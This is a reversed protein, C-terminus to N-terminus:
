RSIHTCGRVFNCMIAKRDDNSTNPNRFDNIATLAAGRSPFINPQQVSLRSAIANRRSANDLQNRIGTNMTININNLARCDRGAVNAQIGM